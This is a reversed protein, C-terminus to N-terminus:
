KYGKIASEIISSAKKKVSTTISNMYTETTKSSTHGFFKQAQEATMQGAMFLSGVTHRATYTTIKQTGLNDSISKLGKNIKHTFAHVTNSLTPEADRGALYPLIYDDPKSPDIRGYKNLLNEAVKELPFSIKKGSKTTKHRIFSVEGNEINKNRLSLIDIVNAGYLNLTLVFFDKAFSEKDNKPKYKIFAKLLDDDLAAKERAISTFSIGPISKFPCQRSTYRKAIGYNFIARLSRLYIRITNESKDNRSERIIESILEITIDDIKLDPRYSLFWAVATKYGKKTKYAHRPLAIYEDAIVKFLTTDKPVSYIREYYQDYFKDFTFNAGLEDIISKACQSAKDAREFAEIAKKTRRNIFEEKKLLTPESEGISYLRPIRNFTIRLKIARKDGKAQPDWVQKITTRNM